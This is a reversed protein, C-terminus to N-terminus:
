ESVSLLFFFFFLSSSYRVVIGDLLPNTPPPAPLCALKSRLCFFFFFSFIQSREAAGRNQQMWRLASILASHAIRNTLSHHKTKQDSSLARGVSFVDESFWFLPLRLMFRDSPNWLIYSVFPLRQRFWQKIFEGQHRRSYQSFAKCLLKRKKTTVTFFNTTPKRVDVATTKWLSCLKILTM